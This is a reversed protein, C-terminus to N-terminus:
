AKGADFVIYCAHQKSYGFAPTAGRARMAEADDLASQAVSGKGIVHAVRKVAAEDILEMDPPFKM